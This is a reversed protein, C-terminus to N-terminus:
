PLLLTEGTGDFMVGVAKPADARPTALTVKDQREIASGGMEYTDNGGSDILMGVTDGQVYSCSLPDGYAGMTTGPARYVDNGSRDVLMGWGCANGSGLSLGPAVYVDDGADDLLLGVSWDHGVGMSTGGVRIDGDNHRDNGALDHFYALAFHAASGQMYYKAQYRDDGGQDFLIGSGFWYGTGQCFVSGVYSDPETGLDALVGIGGSMASTGTDERRGFGAGQAFTSNARNAMQPTYYLPDGGEEPDGPNAFYTDSGAGDILAGFGGSHAFGQGFRYIKRSDNGAPDILLGIGLTAGGQGGSEMEYTDNGAGDFLVGVGLAGFGQSQRLSRYQDDGALDFALGIGVRGAGQRSKTSQSAGPEGATARGDEDSPMRGVDKGDPTDLAHHVEVYGYTDNGGVDVLLAAPMTVSATAGASTLYTDDGGLDVILAIPGNEDTFRQSGADGIVIRGMPTQQDFAFGTAGVQYRLGSDEVAAALEYAAEYLGRWDVGEKLLTRFGPDAVNLYSNSAHILSPAADYLARIDAVQAFARDRAQVSADLAAVLAAVQAQILPPVDAADAAIATRDPTGNRRLVLDGVARALPGEATVTFDTRTQPILVGLHEAAAAIADSTATPSSPRGLSAVVGDGWGALKLPEHHVVAYHSLRWPDNRVGEPVGQPLFPEPMTATCRTRQIAGLAAGVPDSEGGVPVAHCDGQAVCVSTKPATDLAQCRENADCVTNGCVPEKVDPNIPEDPDPSLPPLSAEQQCAAILTLAFLLRKM